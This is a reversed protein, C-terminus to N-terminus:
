GKTAQLVYLKQTYALCGDAQLREQQQALYPLHTAVSFGDVLWPIAKLYYVLAAVSSFFMRGSWEQQLDARLSTQDLLELYFALNSWPWRPTSDFAAILDALSAGDVQQTLFVGGPRLVRDIEAPNFGAHRNIVLDFEGAAFPLRQKLDSDCAVVQVGLPALRQRALVANPTYGETAAMRQPWADCLSLLREGGGTGIDLAATANRLAQRALDSYSWPPQDESMKGHVYSFDWGSFPEQEAALWEQLLAPVVDPETM